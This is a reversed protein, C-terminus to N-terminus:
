VMRVNLDLRYLISSAASELTMADESGDREINVLTMYCRAWEFLFMKFHRLFSNIRRLLGYISINETEDNKHSYFEERNEFFIEVRNADENVVARIYDKDNHFLTHYTADKLM